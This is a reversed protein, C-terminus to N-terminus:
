CCAATARAAGALVILDSLVGLALHTQWLETASSDHVLRGLLILVALACLVILRYGLLGRELTRKTSSAM